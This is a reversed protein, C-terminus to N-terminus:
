PTSTGTAKAIAADIFTQYEHGEGKMTVVYDRVMQLAELLEPAAAILRANAEGCHGSVSMCRYNEDNESIIERWDPYEPPLWNPNIRWPGNTHASM